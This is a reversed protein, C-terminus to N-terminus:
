GGLRRAVRPIISSIGVQHDLNRRISILPWVPGRRVKREKTQNFVEPGESRKKSRQISFADGSNKKM